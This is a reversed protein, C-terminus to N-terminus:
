TNFLAWGKKGQTIRTGMALKADNIQSPMYMPAVADFAMRLVRKSDVKIM